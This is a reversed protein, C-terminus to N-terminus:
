LIEQDIDLNQLFCISKEIDKYLLRDEVLFDVESRYIDLINEIFDSSRKHRFALAQTANM